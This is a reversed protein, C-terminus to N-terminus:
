PESGLIPNGRNRVSEAPGCCACWHSRDILEERWPRASTPWATRETQPQRCCSKCRTAALGRGVARATRAIAEVEGVAMQYRRRFARRDVACPSRGVEVATAHMPRGFSVHECPLKRDGSRRAREELRAWAPHVQADAPRCGFVGFKDQGSSHARQGRFHRIGFDDNDQPCHRSAHASCSHQGHSRVGHARVATAGAEFRSEVADGQLVTALERPFNRCSGGRVLRGDAPSRTSSAAARAGIARCRARASTGPLDRLLSAQIALRSTEASACAVLGAFLRVELRGCLKTIGASL